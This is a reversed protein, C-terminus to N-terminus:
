SEHFEVYIKRLLEKVEWEGKWNPPFTLTDGPGLETVSGDDGFCDMRGDVLHIFEGNSDFDFRFRGTECEWIGIQTKKDDSEWVVRSRTQIKDGQVGQLPNGPELEM